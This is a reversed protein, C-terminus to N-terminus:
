QSCDRALLDDMSANAPAASIQASYIHWLEDEPNPSVGENARRLTYCGAFVATSGDTKKATLVVPMSSYLSGAAAGTTEKGVALTVSVTDSYGAVFEPYPPALEPVPNPAGSFYSYAREYEKRNIANYYSKLANVATDRHEYFPTEGATTPFGKTYSAMGLYTGLQSLLVDYPSQNEPHMEFVAREFYQVTYPKGNLPSTEVFEESLPYGQQALGGNANWYALFRGCVRHGTEPFTRCNGTQALTGYERWGLSVLIGLAMGASVLALSRIRTKVDSKEEQIRAM